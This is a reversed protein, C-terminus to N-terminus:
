DVGDPITSRLYAICEEIEERTLGLLWTKTEDDPGDGYARFFEAMSWGLGRLHYWRVGTNDREDDVEYMIGFDHYNYAPIRISPSARSPGERIFVNGTIDPNVYVLM